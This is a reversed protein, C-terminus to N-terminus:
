TAQLWNVAKTMAATKVDINYGSGYWETMKAGESSWGLVSEALKPEVGSNKFADNMLHRFGHIVIIKTDGKTAYTKKL